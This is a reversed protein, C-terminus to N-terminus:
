DQGAIVGARADNASRTPNHSCAKPCHPVTAQKAGLGHAPPRAPVYEQKKTAREFFQNTRNRLHYRAALITGGRTSASGSTADAQSKWLSSRVRHSLDGESLVMLLVLAMAASAFLLLRRM